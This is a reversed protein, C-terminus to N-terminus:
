IEGQSSNSNLTAIPKSVDSSEFSWIKKAALFIGFLFIGGGVSALLASVGFIPLLLSALPLSITDATYNLTGSFSFVRGMKERPINKQISISRTMGQVSQASALTIAAVLLVLPVSFLGAIALSLGWVVVAFTYIRLPNKPKLAGFLLITILQSASMFGLLKAYFAVDKGLGQKVLLPLGIRWAGTNLLINTASCAIILLISKHQALFRYSEIFGGNKSDPASKVSSIQSRQEPQMKSNSALVFDSRMSFYCITSVLYCFGAVLYIYSASLYLTVVSVILSIAIDSGRQFGDLLANSANLHEDQVVWPLVSRYCPESFASAVALLANAAIIGWIFHLGIAQQFFVSACVVVAFFELTSMVRKKNWRDAAIGAFLGFVVFPLTASLAFASVYWSNNNSLSMVQWIGQIAFLAYAISSATRGTLLMIFQSNGLAGAYSSFFKM